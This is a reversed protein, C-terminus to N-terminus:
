DEFGDDESGAEDNGEEEAEGQEAEDEEGPAEDQTEEEVADDEEAAAEGQDEAEGDGQDEPEGEDAPTEEEAAEAEPEAEADPEGEWQDEEPEGAEEEKPRQEDEGDAAQQAEPPNEDHQETKEFGGDDAFGSDESEARRSPSDSGTEEGKAGDEFENDELDAPKAAEEPPPIEPAPENGSSQREPEAEPEPEPEPVPAVAPEPEPEPPSESPPTDPKPPPESGQVRPPARRPPNARRIPDPAPAPPPKAAPKSQPGILHASPHRIKPTKLPGAKAAGDARKLPPEPVEEEEDLKSRACMRERLEATDVIEGDLGIDRMRANLEEIQALLRNVAIARKPPRTKRREQQRMREISLKIRARMAVREADSEPDREPPTPRITEFEIKTKAVLLRLHLKKNLVRQLEGELDLAERYQGNVTCAARQRMAENQQEVAVALTRRRSQIEMLYFACENHLAALAAPNHVKRIVDLRQQEMHIEAELSRYYGKLECEKESASVDRELFAALANTYADDAAHIESWGPPGSDRTSSVSKM